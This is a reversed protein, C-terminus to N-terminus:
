KMAFKEDRELFKLFESKRKHNLVEENLDLYIVANQFYLKKVEEEIHNCQVHDVLM